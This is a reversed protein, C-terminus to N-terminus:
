PSSCAAKSGQKSIINEDMSAMSSPEAFIQEGPKLQVSLLAYDPQLSIDFDYVSNQARAQM